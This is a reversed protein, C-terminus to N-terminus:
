HISAFRAGIFDQSTSVKIVALDCCSCRSDTMSQEFFNGITPWISVKGLEVLVIATM